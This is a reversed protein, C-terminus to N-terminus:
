RILLFFRQNSVLNSKRQTNSSGKRVILLILIFDNTRARNFSIITSIKLISRSSISIISDQYYTFKDSLVFSISRFSFNMSWQQRCDKNWEKKKKTIFFSFMFIASGKYCSKRANSRVIYEGQVTMTIRWPMLGRKRTNWRVYRQYELSSVWIEAIQPLYFITSNKPPALNGFIRHSQSTFIQFRRYFM